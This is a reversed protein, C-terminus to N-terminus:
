LSYLHPCLFNCVTFLNCNKHHPQAKLFWNFAMVQAFEITCRSLDQFLHHVCVLCLGDRQQKSKLRNEWSRLDELNNVLIGSIRTVSITLSKIDM